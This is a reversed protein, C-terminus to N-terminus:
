GMMEMQWLPYKLPKKLFLGGGIPQFHPKLKDRYWRATRTHQNLDTRQKDCVALDEKTLVALYLVKGTLRTLNDLAQTCQRNPLYGLVDSCIVLDASKGRYEQVSSQHWGFRQCLYDSLEVGTTQAQPYHTACANLLTGIGCGLDIISSVTVELHNLYSCIFDALRQQEDSSVAQSDPDFYFRQYYAEDFTSM